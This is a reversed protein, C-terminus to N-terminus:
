TEEDPLSLHFHPPHDARQESDPQPPHAHEPGHLEGPPLIEALRATLWASALDELAQREEPTLQALWAERTAEDADVPASQLLQYLRKELHKDM